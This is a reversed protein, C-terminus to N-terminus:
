STGSARSPSHFRWTNRGADKARYMATDAALLLRASDGGDEPYLAIGVSVGISVPTDDVTFNATLASILNDAVRVANDASQIPNLVIVVEDGGLRSLLDDARLTAQLRGAVQQLLSDGAQHGLTDNVDKFHDLDLFLVALLSNGPQAHRIALSLYQELQTRNPLGTLEDHLAQHRVMEEAVKQETIDNFIHIHRLLKGDADRVASITQLAVLTTGDACRYRVEGQWSDERELKALVAQINAELAQGPELLEILSRGSLAPMDYGTLQTVTPNAEVVAHDEDTILIAEQAHRFVSAAMKLQQESYELQHAQAEVRALLPHLARSVVLTGTSAMLLIALAPWTLLELADDHFQRSPKKVLLRWGQEGLPAGFALQMDRRPANAESPSRLEPGKPGLALVQEGSADGLSIEANADSRDPHTLLALLPAAHFFVMDRGLREGDADLIPACAQILLGGGEQLHFRCPYGQASDGPPPPTEDPVTGLRSVLEDDPGLRVLGAVDPAQAMADALRPTTFHSLAALSIDGNAYAELRHRIETRSTLQRTVDQYRGLQHHLADAQAEVSLQSISEMGSRLAHYFPLATALGALLATALIGLATLTRIRLHLRRIYRRTPSPTGTTM